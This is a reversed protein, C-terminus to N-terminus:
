MLEASAFLIVQLTALQVTLESASSNVWGESQLARPQLNVLWRERPFCDRTEFLTLWDCGGLSLQILQDVDSEHASEHTVPSPLAHDNPGSVVSLEPFYEGEHLRLNTDHNEPLKYNPDNM